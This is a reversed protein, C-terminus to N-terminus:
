RDSDRRICLVPLPQRRGRARARSSRWASSRPALPRTCSAILCRGRRAPPEPENDSLDLMKMLRQHTEVAGGKVVLVSVTSRNVATHATSSAMAGLIRLRRRYGVVVLDAGIDQAFDVVADAARGLRVEHSVTTHHQM